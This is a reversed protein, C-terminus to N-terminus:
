SHQSGRVSIIWTQRRDECSPAIYDAELPSPRGQGSLCVRLVHPRDKRPERGATPDVPVLNLRVRFCHRPEVLRDVQGPVAIWCQCGHPPHPDISM